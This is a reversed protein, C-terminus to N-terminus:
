RKKIAVKVLNAAGIEDGQLWVLGADDYRMESLEVDDNEAEYAVFIKKLKVDVDYVCGDREEDHNSQQKTIWYGVVKEIVPRETECIATSNEISKKSKEAQM